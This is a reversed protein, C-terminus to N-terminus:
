RVFLCYWPKKALYHTDPLLGFLVFLLFPFSFILVRYQLVPNYYRSYFFGVLFPIAFWTLSIFFFKAPFKKRIISYVIGWCLLAAALGYVYPSFHFIYLLYQIIYDNGPKALWDSLGGGFHFFQYYFIHLHPTYLVIMMIGATLYRIIYRRKVFFIGTLAVLGAFALSFYHNYMCLSSFLLYLVWNLDYRKEPRFVINHWHYVMAASFFLGIGYPRIEQGHMITYQLTAIYAACVLGVTTNFWEKGIKFVYFVSAVSCIIFPLKVYLETYGVLKTWFYLLTEIGAPHADKMMVGYLIMDTFSNYYTRFLASLEDYAYPIAFPHYLRTCAAVAIVFAVLICSVIKDTKTM